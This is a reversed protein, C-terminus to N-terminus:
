SSTQCKNNLRGRITWIDGTLFNLTNELADKGNEFIEPADVPFTVEIERSWGDFGLKERPLLIDIGYVLSAIVFLDFAAGEHRKTFEFLNRYEINLAVETLKSTGYSLVIGAFGYPNRPRSLVVNVKM